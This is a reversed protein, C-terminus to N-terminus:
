SQLSPHPVNLVDRCRRSCFWVCIILVYNVRLKGVAFGALDYDGEQYMGPMEATEGGILACGAAVCGQAIGAVVEAGVTTSLQGTAYYDLFFLPEAGCVLIDNVCMAVLDIGITNHIHTDIALRLKTGVGDTGAVLITDSSTYGSSALDFLGGYGGIDQTFCGPRLTSRCHPKILSVLEEGAHINVGSTAYTLKRATNTSTDTNSTNSAAITPAVPPTTPVSTKASTAFSVHPTPTDSPSTDTYPVYQVYPTNPQTIPQRDTYQPVIPTDPEVMPSPPPSTVKYPTDFVTKDATDPSTYSLPVSDPTAYPDTAITTHGTNTSGSYNTTDASHTTNTDSAHTAPTIPHVSTPNAAHLSTDPEPTPSAAVFHLSNTDYTVSETADVMHKSSDTSILEDIFMQVAEILAEGELTQVKEKLSQPTDKERDVTCKKQILIEGQDVEETVFHVTCGTETCSLDDLVAQHVALDMGGAFAPLLSPHINICRYPYHSTFVSSVIRMYGVMLVVDVGYSDLTQVVLSDYSERTHGTASLYVSPIHHKQARLLIGANAKNSIVVAITAHLTHNHNTDILPQLSTGNTSGLVGIRLPRELGSSFLDCQM